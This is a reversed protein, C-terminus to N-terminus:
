SSKGEASELWTRLEDSADQVFGDGELHFGDLEELIRRDRICMESGM